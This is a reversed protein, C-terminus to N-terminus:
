RWEDEVLVKKKSVPSFRRFERRICPHPLPPSSWLDLNELISKENRTREVRIRQDQTARKVNDLIGTLEATRSGLIAYDGENLRFEKPPSRLFIPIALYFHSTELGTRRCYYALFNDSSSVSKIIKYNKEIGYGFANSAYDNKSIVALLKLQHLTIGLKVCTDARTYVALDISCKWKNFKAKAFIEQHVYFDSDTSVAVADPYNAIHVDAEFLATEYNINNSKFCEQLIAIFEHPIPSAALVAKDLKKWGSKSLRNSNALYLAKQAEKTANALRSLATEFKNQSRAGDFVVVLNPFGSLLKVLYNCIFIEGNTKNRLTSKIFRFNVVLKKGISYPLFILWSPRKLFHRLSSLWLVTSCSVFERRRSSPTFDPSVWKINKPFLTKM